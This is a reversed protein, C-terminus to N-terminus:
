LPKGKYNSKNKINVLADNLRYEKPTIGFQKKFLKYYNSENTLGIMEIIDRVSYSSNKLLKLSKNLRVSNIYDGISTNTAEKFVRGLHSQSVKFVDSISKLSLNSDEYSMNIYDTVLNVITANKQPQKEESSIVLNFIREFYEKVENMTKFELISKSIDSLELRKTADNTFSVEDYLNQISLALRMISITFNDADNKILDALLEDFYMEAMVIDKVLLANLLKNAIPFSYHYKNVEHNEYIIKMTICCGVSYMIKHKLLVQLERFVKNLNPANYNETVFISIPVSIAKKFEKQFDSSNELFETRVMGNKDSVL